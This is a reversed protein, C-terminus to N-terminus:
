ITILPRQTYLQEPGGHTQTVTEKTICSVEVLSVQAETSGNSWREHPQTSRYQRGLRKDNDGSADKSMEKRREEEEEEEVTAEVVVDAM